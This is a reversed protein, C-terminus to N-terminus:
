IGLDAWKKGRLGQAIDEVSENRDNGVKVYRKNRMGGYSEKIFETDYLSDLVFVRGNWNTDNVYAKQFKEKALAVLAENSLSSVENNWLVETRSTEIPSNYSYIDVVGKIKAIKWVCKNWYMGLYECRHHSYAGGEARCIYTEAEILEASKQACNCIDMYGRWNPLLYQSDLYQRFDIVTERLSISLSPSLLEIQSIFSEFTLAAFSIRQEYKEKCITEIEIFRNKDEKEFNALAILVKTGINKEDLDRLHGELQKNYFWDYNKTEIYITFASQSILGDLVTDTGPIQQNFQVGVQIKSQEGLIGALVESLLKPNEQYLMRLMLLCYNTTRNESQNYGSFLSIEKGM